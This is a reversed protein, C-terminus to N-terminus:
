SDKSKDRNGRFLSRQESKVGLEGEKGQLKAGRGWLEQSVGANRQTTPSLSFMRAGQELGGTGASLPQSPM